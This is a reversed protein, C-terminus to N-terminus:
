RNRKRQQRAAKAQARRKRLRAAPDRAPRGDTVPGDGVPAVRRADRMVFFGIGVLLVVAVGFVLFIVTKSSSGSTTETGTSTSKGTTTTTTTPTTEAAQAGGVLENYANSGGAAEAAAAPAAPVLALGLATGVALLAIRSGLAGIGRTKV